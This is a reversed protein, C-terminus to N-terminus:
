RLAAEFEAVSIGVRKLSNKLLGIKVRRPLSVFKKSPFVVIVHSGKGRKWRAEGGLRVLANVAEKQTVDRLEGM